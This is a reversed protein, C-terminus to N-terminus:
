SNDRLKGKGNRHETPSLSEYNFQKGEPLLQPKTVEISKQQLGMPSNSHAHKKTDTIPAYGERKELFDSGAQHLISGKQFPKKITTQLNPM